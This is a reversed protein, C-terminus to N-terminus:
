LLRGRTTPQPDARDIANIHTKLNKRLRHIRQHIANSSCELVSAIEDISLREWSLLELLERERHGLRQAAKAVLDGSAVADAPDSSNSLPALSMLRDTLRKRRAHDRRRHAIANRAVGYLWPLEPRDDTRAVHQWAIAFVEAVVDGVEDAPLRRRM